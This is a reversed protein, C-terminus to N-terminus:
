RSCCVTQDNTKSRHPCFTGPTVPTDSEPGSGLPVHGLSSSSPQEEDRSSCSRFALGALGNELAWLSQTQVSLRFLTARGTAM